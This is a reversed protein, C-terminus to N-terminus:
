VKISRLVKFSVNQNPDNYEWFIRSDTMLEIKGDINANKDSITFHTKIDSHSLLKELCDISQKELIDSETVSLKPKFKSM